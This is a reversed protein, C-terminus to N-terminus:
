GIILDLTNDDNVIFSIKNDVYDVTAIDEVALGSDEIMGNDTAVPLNGSILETPNTTLVTRAGILNYTGEPNETLVVVFCGLIGDFVTSIFMKNIGSNHATANFILTLEDLMASIHSAAMLEDYREKTLTIATEDWTLEETIPVINIGGEGSGGSPISYLKNNILLTELPESVETIGNTHDEDPNGMVTSAYNNYYNYTVTGSTADYNFRIYTKCVGDYGNEDTSAPSMFGTTLECIYSNDNKSVIVWPSEYGTDELYVHTCNNQIVNNFDTVSTLSETYTYIAPISQKTIYWNLTSGTSWGGTFHLTYLNNNIICNWSHHHSDHPINSSLKFCALTEYGDITDINSTIKLDTNNVVCDRYTDYSLTGTFSEIADVWSGSGQAGPTYEKLVIFNNSSSSGGFPSSMDAANWVFTLPDAATPEFKYWGNLEVIECCLIFQTQMTTMSMTFYTPALPLYAGGLDLNVVTGLNNAIRAFEEETLTFYISDEGEIVEKIIPELSGGEGSGGSPLSYTVGAVKLKNLVSTADDTPNAEVTTGSGSGGEISINGSGLISTGNITKINTGSVLTDQKDELKPEIEDALFNSLADAVYTEDVTGTNISSVAQNVFAKTALDSLYVRSGMVSSTDKAVILENEREFPSDLEVKDDLKSQLNLLDKETLLRRAEYSNSM